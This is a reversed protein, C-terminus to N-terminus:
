GRERRSLTPTLPVKAVVENHHPDLLRDRTSSLEPVILGVAFFQEPLPKPPSTEGTELKAALKGDAGVDEVEEAVLSSDSDLEVASAVGLQPLLLSVIVSHAM